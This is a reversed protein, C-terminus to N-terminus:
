SVILPFLTTRTARAFIRCGSDSGILSEPERDADRWHTALGEAAVRPIDAM